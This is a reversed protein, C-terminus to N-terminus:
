RHEPRVNEVVVDGNDSRTTIQAVATTPSSTEAVRVRTSQGSSAQVLYPGPEPLGIVVDGDRNVADVTKPAVEGFDVTIDGDATSASFQEAVAIPNRTTVDGSVTHIEVRRAAGGLVVDADTSRAVLQDLDTQILLEGIGMRTTLSLRRAQDPPLTVTIEGGRAWDLPSSHDEGLSIRTTGAETNVTLQQDGSRSSNVLRLDARATKAERDATIRVGIPVDGTDLTLSRMSAPLEETDTSVRFSSIGWAAVSLSVVAGVLIVAAAAVLTVRVATRGAPSLPPPPSAPPPATVSTM